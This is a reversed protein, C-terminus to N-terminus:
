KFVRGRLIARFAILIVMLGALSPFAHAIAAALVKALVLVGLALLVLAIITVAVLQM